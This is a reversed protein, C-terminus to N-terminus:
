GSTSGPAHPLSASNLERASLMVQRLAGDIHYRDNDV